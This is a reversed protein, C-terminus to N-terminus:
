AKPFAQKYIEKLKEITIHTYVQTAALSSHGLLEKIANIDAGNNLMNTAFSHRLVHPSKKTNTTFGTMERNVIRYVFERSIKNGKNDLFLFDCPQNVEGLFTKRVFFYEDMERKFKLTIPIQRMKNRKGLVSITLNYLDIDSVKLNLLESLRIGTLYFLSLITKTRIIQHPSETGDVQKDLLADMSKSEIFVPLSKKIKPATIKLMPNVIIKKERELFRFFTRLVTIKRNVSRNNVGGDIMSIIWSRIYFHTAKACDSLEYQQELFIIFQKIDSQYASLTHISFRKEYQLHAVFASLEKM